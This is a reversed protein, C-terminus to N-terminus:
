SSAENRQPTNNRIQCERHQLKDMALWFKVSLQIQIEKSIHISAQYPFFPNFHMNPMTRRKIKRTMKVKASGIYSANRVTPLSTCTCLPVSFTHFVLIEIDKQGQKWVSQNSLTNGINDFQLSCLEFFNWCLLSYSHQSLWHVARFIWSPEQLFCSGLHSSFPLLICSFLVSRPWVFCHLWINLFWVQTFSAHLNQLMSM